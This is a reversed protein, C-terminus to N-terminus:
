RPPFGRTCVDAAPRGVNLSFYKKITNGHKRWHRIIVHADERCQFNERNHCGDTVNRRSIGADRCLDGARIQRHATSAEIQRLLTAIQEARFSKRPRVPEKKM